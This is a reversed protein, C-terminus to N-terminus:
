PKFVCNRLGTQLRNSFLLSLQDNLVSVLAYMSIVGILFRVIREVTSKEVLEM